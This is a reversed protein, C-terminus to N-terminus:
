RSHWRNCTCDYTKSGQVAEECADTWNSGATDDALHDPHNFNKEHAQLTKM